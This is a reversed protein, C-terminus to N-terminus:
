FDIILLRASMESLNEEVEKLCKNLLAILNKFVEEYKEKIKLMNKYSQM